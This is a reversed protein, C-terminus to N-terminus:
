KKVPPKISVQFVEYDKVTFSYRGSLQNPKERFDFSVPNTYNKNVENCQDYIYHQM